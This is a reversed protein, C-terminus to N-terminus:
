NVNKDHIENWNLLKKLILIENQQSKYDGRITYGIYNKNNKYYIKILKALTAPSVNKRNGLIILLRQHISDDTINSLTDIYM